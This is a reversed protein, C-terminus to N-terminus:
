LLQTVLVRAICVRHTYSRQLPIVYILLLIANAWAAEGEVEYQKTVQPRQSLTATHLGLFCFNHRHRPFPGPFIATTGLLSLFLIYFSSDKRTYSLLPDKVMFKSTRPLSAMM